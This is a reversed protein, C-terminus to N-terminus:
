VKFFKQLTKIVAGVLQAPWWALSTSCSSFHDAALFGGAEGRELQFAREATPLSELKAQVQRKTDAASPSFLLEREHTLHRAGPHTLFVSGVVEIEVSFIM